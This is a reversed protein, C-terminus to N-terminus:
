DNKLNIKASVLLKEVDSYIEEESRSADIEYFRASESEKILDVMPQTLARYEQLRREIVEIQDDSRKILTGKKCQPCSSGELLTGAATFPAYCSNCTLRGAFRNFIHNDTVHFYAFVTRVGLEKLLPLMLRYQAATRPFGDILLIGNQSLANNKAGAVDSFLEIVIEDSVLKGSEIIAKVKIGLETKRAIHDKLADGTSFSLGEYKSLIRRIQTGKGSAPKGLCFCFLAM